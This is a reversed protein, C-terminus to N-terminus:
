HLPAHSLQSAPFLLMLRPTSTAHLPEDEALPLLPPLQPEMPESCCIGLESGQPAGLVLPGGGPSDEELVWPVTRVGGERKRRCAKDEPQRGNGRECAPVLAAASEQHELIQCRLHPGRMYRKQRGEGGWEPVRVAVDAASRPERFPSPHRRREISTRAEPTGRNDDSASPQSSM